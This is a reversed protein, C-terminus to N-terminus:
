FSFKYQGAYPINHSTRNMDYDIIDGRRLTGEGPDPIHNREWTGAKFDNRGPKDKLEQWERTGRHRFDIGYNMRRGVHLLDAVDAKGDHYAKIRRRAACITIGCLKMLILPNMRMGNVIFDDYNM